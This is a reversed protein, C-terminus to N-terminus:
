LMKLNYLLYRNLILDRQLTKRDINVSLFFLIDPVSIEKKEEIFSIIKDQREQKKNM